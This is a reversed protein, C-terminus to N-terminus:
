IDFTLSQMTLFVYDKHVEMKPRQTTNLVDEIILPHINFQRGLGGITVVDRLGIVRFWNCRKFSSQVDIPEGTPLERHEIEKDDFGLYSIRTGQHPSDGTYILSGPPLGVKSTSASEQPSKM